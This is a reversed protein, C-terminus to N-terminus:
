SVTSQDLGSVPLGDISRSLGFLAAARRTEEDEDLTAISSAIEIANLMVDRYRDEKEVERVIGKLLLRYRPIRQAPEILLSELSCNDSGAGASARTRQSAFCIDTRIGFSIGSIPICVEIFNRFVTNRKRLERELDKARELNLIYAPYITQFHDLQHNCPLMLTDAPSTFVQMRDSVHRVMVSAWHEFTKGEHNGYLSARLDVLLAENAPLIAEINGFIQKAEFANIIETDKRRTFDRLPHAYLQWITLPLLTM